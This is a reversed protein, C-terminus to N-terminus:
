SEGILEGCCQHYKIFVSPYTISFAQLIYKKVPKSGIQDSM